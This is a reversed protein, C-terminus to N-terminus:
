THYGIFNTLVVFRNKKQLADNFAINRYLKIGYMDCMVLVYM